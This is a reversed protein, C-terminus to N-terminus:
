FLTYKPPQYNTILVEETKTNKNKLNYSSNNYNYNLYNVIYKKSWNLLNENVIEKHLLVNSMAFKVGLDNVRDLFKMLKLDEEENWFLGNRNNDNYITTSHLYPPDVYILDNKNLKNFDIEDYNKNTFVIDKIKKFNGKIQRSTDVSYHSSDKGCPLNFEGKSNFRMLSNFANKSLIFLDLPNSNKNYKDRFKLFYEKKNKIKELNNDRIIKEIEKVLEEATSYKQFEKYIEILHTNKDNAIKHKSDVNLSVVCSGCFLDYFTDIKLPFLPIIQPLLRYKNGNYTIPSRKYM